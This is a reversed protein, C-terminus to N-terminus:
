GTVPTCEGQLFSNVESDLATRLSDGLLSNINGDALLNGAMNSNIGPMMKFIESQLMESGPMGGQLIDTIFQSQTDPAMNKLESQVLEYAVSNFNGQTIVNQLISPARDGLRDVANNLLGQKASDSIQYDSLVERYLESIEDDRLCAIAENVDVGYNVCGKNVAKEIIKDRVDSGSSSKAVDLLAERKEYSNLQENAAKRIEDYAISQPNDNNIVQKLINSAKTQDQNNLYNVGEALAMSTAADTMDTGSIAKTFLMRADGNPIQGAATNFIQQKSWIDMGDMSNILAGTTLQNNTIGSIFEPTIDHLFNETNVMSVLNLDKSGTIADYIQNSNPLKIYPQLSDPILGSPLFSGLEQKILDGIVMDIISNTKACTSIAREKMENGNEDVPVLTICYDKGIFKDLLIPVSGCKNINFIMTGNKYVGKLGPVPVTEGTSSKTVPVNCTKRSLFESYPNTVYKNLPSAAQNFNPIVAFQSQDIIDDLFQNELYETLFDNCYVKYGVIKPKGNSDTPVKVAVQLATKEPADSIYDAVNILDLGPILTSFIGSSVLGSSVGNDKSLPTVVVEEKLVPEPPKDKLQLAFRITILDKRSSNLPYACLRFKDKPYSCKNNTAADTFVGETPSTKLIRMIKYDDFVYTTAASDDLMSFVGFRASELKHTDPNFNMFYIYHTHSAIVPKISAKYFIYSDKAEYSTGDSNKVHLSINNNAVDFWITLDRGDPSSVKSFNFECVCGTTKNSFCDQILEIMDNFLPYEEFRDAFSLKYDFAQNNFEKMKDNICSKPNDTCNEWTNRFWDALPQVSDNFEKNVRVTFSPKFDYTGFSSSMALSDASSTAGGTIMNAAECTLEYETVKAIYTQTEDPYKSTDGTCLRIHNPGWNYGAMVQQSDIAFDSNKCVMNNITSQVQTLYRTGAMINLEPDFRQDSDTSCSERDKVWDCEPVSLGLGRATDPMLQMLGGAGVPSVAFPNGRSEQYIHALIQCEPVGYRQSASRIYSGWQTYVDKLSNLGSYISSSSPMPLNYAQCVAELENTNIPTGCGEGAASTPTELFCLPQVRDDTGYSTFVIKDAGFKLGSAVGKYIVAFHLHAPNYADESCNDGRGGVTGIQQGKGVKDNVNVTISDMHLYESGIGSGHNIVVRGNCNDAVVVQGFAAALVPTGKDAVIDVAPHDEPVGNVVRPGFCSSIAKSDTQVPWAFKGGFYPISIALPNSLRANMSLVNVGTDSSSIGHFLFYKEKKDVTLNYSLPLEVGTGKYYNSTIGLFSQKFASIFATECDPLCLTDGTSWMPYIYKGCHSVWEDVVHETSPNNFCSIGMKDIAKQAAIESAQDIFINVADADQLSSFVAFQKEGIVLNKGDPGTLKKAESLSILAYSLAFVTFVAVFVSYIGMSAKKNHRMMSMKQKKGANNKNNRKRM